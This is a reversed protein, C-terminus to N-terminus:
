LSITGWAKGEVLDAGALYRYFRTQTRLLTKGDHSYELRITARLQDGDSGKLLFQYSLTNGSDSTAMPRGILEIRQRRGPIASRDFDPLRVELRTRWLPLSTDCTRDTALPLNGGLSSSFLPSDIAAEALLLQNDRKEFEPRVPINTFTPDGVKHITYSGQYRNHAMKKLTPATGILSALDDYHLTPQLFAISGGDDVALEFNQEFNCAQQQVAQIRTLLCGPLSLTSAILLASVASRSTVPPM